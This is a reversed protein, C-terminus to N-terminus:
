HGGLFVCSAIVLCSGRWACFRCKCCFLDFRDGLNEMYLELIHMELLSAYKLLAQLRGEVMVSRDTCGGEKEGVGDTNTPGCQFDILFM